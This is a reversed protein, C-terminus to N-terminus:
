CGPSPVRELTTTLVTPDKGVAAFTTEGTIQGNPAVLGRFTITYLRLTPDSEFSTTAKFSFFVADIPSTSASVPNSNTVEQVGDADVYNRVRLLNM